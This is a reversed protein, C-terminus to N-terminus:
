KGGQEDSLEESSIDGRLGVAEDLPCLHSVIGCTIGDGTVNVVTQLRDLFWDIAVIFPFGDPTGTTNFVTNYATIVLVLGASPVPATGASGITSIIV